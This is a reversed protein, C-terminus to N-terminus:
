ALEQLTTALNSEAALRARQEEILKDQADDMRNIEENHKSGDAAALAPSVSRSKAAGCNRLFQPAYL